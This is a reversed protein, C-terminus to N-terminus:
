CCCFLFISSTLTNNFNGVVILNSNIHKKLNNATTKLMKASQQGPTYMNLLTDEEQHVNVKTILLLYERDWIVKKCKLGIGESILLALRSKKLSINTSPNDETRLMSDMKIVICIKKAPLIINSEITLNIKIGTDRLHYM